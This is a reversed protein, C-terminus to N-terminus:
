QLRHGLLRFNWTSRMGEMQLKLDIEALEITTGAITEQDLIVDHDAVPPRV